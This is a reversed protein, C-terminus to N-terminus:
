ATTRSDYGTSHGAREIGVFTAVPRYIVTPIM